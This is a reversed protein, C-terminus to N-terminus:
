KLGNDTITKIGFDQKRGNPIEIKMENLVQTLFKESKETIIGCKQCTWASHYKGGESDKCSPCLSVLMVTNKENCNPCDKRPILFAGKNNVMEAPSPLHNVDRYSMTRIPIGLLPATENYLTTINKEEPLGKLQRIIAGAKLVIQTIQHPCPDFTM